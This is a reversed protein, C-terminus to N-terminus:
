APDISIRYIGGVHHILDPGNPEAYDVDSARRCYVVRGAPLALPADHMLEEIRGAVQEAPTATGGIGVAKVLWREHQLHDTPQDGFTWDPNGTQKAFIIYPTATGVPAVSHYIADPDGLLGTLTADDHLRSYIATRLASAM